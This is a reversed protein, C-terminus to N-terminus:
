IIIPRGDLLKALAPPIDVFDHYFGDFFGKTEESLIEQYEELIDSGFIVPMLLTEGEKVVAVVQYEDLDAINKGTFSCHEFDAEKYEFESIQQRNETMFNQMNQLSEKSIHQLMEKKCNVCIAYEFIVFHNNDGLNRRYAKEIYYMENELILECKTCHSFPQNTKDSYLKEPISM